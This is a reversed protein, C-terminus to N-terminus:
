KQTKGNRNWRSEGSDNGRTDKGIQYGIAFCTGCLSLIEVLVGLLEM